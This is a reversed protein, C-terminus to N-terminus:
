RGARRSAVAHVYAAVAAVDRSSLRGPMVRAFSALSGVSLRAVALDGGTAGSDRGSITHCGSCSRDFVVYGRRLEQQTSSRIHRGCGCLLTVVIIGAAM